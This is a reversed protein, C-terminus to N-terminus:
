IKGSVLTKQSASTPTFKVVETAYHLQSSVGEKNKSVKLKHPKGSKLKSKTIQVKKGTTSSSHEAVGHM